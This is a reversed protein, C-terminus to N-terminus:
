IVCPLSTGVPPVCRGCSTVASSKGPWSLIDGFLNSDVSPKGTEPDRAHVPVLAAGSESARHAEEVIEDPTIPLHPLMTPTHIAGTLAATVIYKDMETAGKKEASM